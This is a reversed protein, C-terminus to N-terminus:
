RRHVSNAALYPSNEVERLDRIVYAFRLTERATTADASAHLLAAVAIDLDARPEISPAIDPPLPPYRPRISELSLVAFAVSSLDACADLPGVAHALHRQLRAIAFRAESIADSPETFQPEIPASETTM